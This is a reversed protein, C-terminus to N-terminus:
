RPIEKWQSLEEKPIIISKVFHYGDKTLVKDADAIIKYKEIAYIGELHIPTTLTGNTGLYVYQIEKIM